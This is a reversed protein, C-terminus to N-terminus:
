RRRAPGARDLAQQPQRRPLLDLHWGPGPAALHPHRGRGAGRGQDGRRGHRGAADDRVPRGPDPLLRGGAPRGAAGRGPGGDDRQRGKTLRDTMRVITWPRHVFWGLGTFSETLPLRTLPLRTLPLRTLPLRTLPLRTLPLRTLPLGAASASSLWFSSPHCHCWDAYRDHLPREDALLYGSTGIAFGSSTAADRGTRSRPPVTSVISSAWVTRVSASTRTVPSLIAATPGRRCAGSPASSISALPPMTIGPIISVWRCM